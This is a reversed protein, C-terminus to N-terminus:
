RQLRRPEEDLKNSESDSNGGDGLHVVQVHNSTPLLLTPSTFPVPSSTPSPVLTTTSDKLEDVKKGVEPQACIMPPSGDQCTKTLPISKEPPQDGGGIPQALAQTIAPTVDLTDAQSSSTSAYALPAQTSTSKSHSKKKYDM